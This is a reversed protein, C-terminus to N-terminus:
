VKKRPGRIMPHIKDLDIKKVPVLSKLLSPDHHAMAAINGQTIHENATTRDHLAILSFLRDFTIGAEWTM